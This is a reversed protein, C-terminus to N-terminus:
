LDIYLFINELRISFVKKKNFCMLIVGSGNKIIRSKLSGSGNSHEIIEIKNNRKM